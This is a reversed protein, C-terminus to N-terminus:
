ILVDTPTEDEVPEPVGEHRVLWRMAKGRTVNDVLAVGDRHLSMRKNPHVTCEIGLEACTTALMQLGQLHAAFYDRTRKIHEQLTM